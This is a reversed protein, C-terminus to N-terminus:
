RARAGRAKLEATLALITECLKPVIGSDTQRPVRQPLLRAELARIRDIRDLHARAAHEAQKIESETM